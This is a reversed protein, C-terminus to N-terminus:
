PQDPLLSFLLWPSVVGKVPVGYGKRGERLGWRKFIIGAELLAM